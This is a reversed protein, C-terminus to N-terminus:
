HTGRHPQGPRDATPTFVIRPWRSSGPLAGNDLMPLLGARLLSPKGAGSPAVVVQVGGSRLRNDLRAIM